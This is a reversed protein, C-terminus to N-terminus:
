STAKKATQAERQAVLRAKAAELTKIECELAEIAKELQSKKSM